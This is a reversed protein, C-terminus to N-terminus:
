GAARPRLGRGEEGKAMEMVARSMEPLKMSENVLKMVEGSRQLSGAVKVM